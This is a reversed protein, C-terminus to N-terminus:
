PLCSERTTCLMWICNPGTWPSQRREAVSLLSKLKKLSVSTLFVSTVIKPRTILSPRTTCLFRQLCYASPSTLIPNFLGSSSKPKKSRLTTLNWRRWRNELSSITSKLTAKRWAILCRGTARWRSRQRLTGKPLHRWWLRCVESSPKRFVEELEEVRVWWKWWKLLTWKEKKKIIKM